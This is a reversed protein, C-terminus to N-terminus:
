EKNYKYKGVDTFDKLDIKGDQVDLLRRGILSNMIDVINKGENEDKIKKDYVKYEVILFKGNEEILECGWKILEKEVM